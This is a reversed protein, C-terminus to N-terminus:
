VWEIDVHKNINFGKSELLIIIDTEIDFERHPDCNDDIVVEVVETSMQGYESELIQKTKFQVELEKDMEVRIKFSYHNILFTQDSKLEPNEIIELKM